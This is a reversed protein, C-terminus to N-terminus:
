LDRLILIATAVVAGVSCIWVKGPIRGLVSKASEYPDISTSVDWYGYITHSIFPLKALRDVPPMGGSVREQRKILALALGVDKPDYPGKKRESM